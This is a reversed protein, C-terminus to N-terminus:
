SATAMGLAEHRTKMAEASAAVDDQADAVNANRSLRCLGPHVPLYDRWNFATQDTM